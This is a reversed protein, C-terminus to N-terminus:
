VTAHPMMRQFATPRWGSYVTQSIFFPKFHKFFCLLTTIKVVISASFDLNGACFVHSAFQPVCLTTFQAGNENDRGSTFGSRIAPFCFVTYAISTTRQLMYLWKGEARMFKLGSFRYLAINFIHRAACGTPPAPTPRLSFPNM